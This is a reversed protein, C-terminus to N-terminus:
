LEEAFDGSRRFFSRWTLLLLGLSAVIVASLILSLEGLSMNALVPDPAGAPQIHAYFARQFGLVVDGIPNLVVYVGFLSVPGFRISALKEQLMASQYVIPTLWFWALLVLNM